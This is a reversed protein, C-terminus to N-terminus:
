VDAAKLNLTRGTAVTQVQSVFVFLGSLAFNAIGAFATAVANAPLYHLGIRDVLFRMLALNVVIGVAGNAAHIAADPM